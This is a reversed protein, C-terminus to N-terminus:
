LCMSESFTINGPTSIKYSFSVNIYYYEDRHKWSQLM